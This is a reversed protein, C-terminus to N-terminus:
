HQSLCMPTPPLYLSFPSLRLPPDSNFSCAANLSLALIHSLSLIFISQCESLCSKLEWHIYSGRGIYSSFIEYTGLLKSSSIFWSTHTASCVYRPKHKYHNNTKQCTQIFEDKNIYLAPLPIPYDKLTAILCICSPVSCLMDYFWLFTKVCTTPQRTFPLFTFSGKFSDAKAASTHAWGFSLGLHAMNKGVASQIHWLEAIFQM